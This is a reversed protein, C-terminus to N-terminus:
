PSLKRGSRGVEDNVGKGEVTSKMRMISEKGEVERSRLM